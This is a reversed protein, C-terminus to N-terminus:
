DKKTKQKQKKTKQKTEKEGRIQQISITKNLLCPKMVSVRMKKYVVFKLFNQKELFSFYALFSLFDQWASTFNPKALM